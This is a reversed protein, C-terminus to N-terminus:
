RKVLNCGLFDCLRDVTDTTLQREGELFRWLISYGIGSDKALRYLSMGSERIAERLTESVTPKPHKKAM